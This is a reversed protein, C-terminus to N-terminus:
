ARRYNRLSPTAKAIWATSILSGIGGIVVSSVAGVAQALLGAELEGLQPGGLFFIMNVGTMRGRLHDPTNLQRLVNRIVMSITDAAGTLALCAFMLWFNRSLGFAITAMGYAAVSWLLVRGRRVIRSEFHLLVLSTLAAGIAPAATLLGYTEAGRGLIDQTFIPLLAMASSFFTAFFDVLMTSRILPERFVFRLGELAASPRLQAVSEPAHRPLDRLAIVAAIAALFSLANLAYIWGPGLWLYAVGTLAPGGVAAMQFAMTNLSIASPLEARAVLAPILSQRAPGEFAAAASNVATLVYLPWISSLGNLTLLAQLGASGAMLCQMWFMLRRRDLADALVGGVLAFVVIPVVKVLGIMGLALGRKDPSVLTAIHWPVCASQMLTGVLSLSQGAWLLRFNRNRLAALPSGQTASM